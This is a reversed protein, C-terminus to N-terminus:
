FGSKEKLIEYQKAFWGLQTVDKNAYIDFTRPSLFPTTVTYTGLKQGKTIPANLANDDYSISVSVKDEQLKPYVYTIDESTSVPITKEEGLHVKANEIVDGAKFPTKIAFYREGYKLLKEAENAREQESHLGNVVAIQRREDPGIGSVAMGYGGDETHGTKLGDVNIDRYLLLNRNRQSINNYTYEKIHFYKAYLEPFDHIIHRSLKAIDMVSMHHQDDPWGTANMFHSNILGLEKGTQNMLKAFADESGAIGEAVVLCADNGSQVIIGKLLDDIKVDSNVNVFMKSGGKRWAKESVHFTDNPSLVGKKLHDFLIYTTMLKTMSSPIAPDNAKKDFLVEGTDYDMLVAHEANTEIIMSFSISAYM